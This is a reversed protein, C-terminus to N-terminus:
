FIPFFSSFLHLFPSFSFLFAICGAFFTFVILSFIGLVNQDCMNLSEHWFIMLEDLSRGRVCVCVCRGIVGEVVVWKWSAPRGAPQSATAGYRQRTGDPAYLAVPVGSQALARGAAAAVPGGLPSRRVLSLPPRINLHSDIILRHINEWLRRLFLFCCSFRRISEVRINSERSAFSCRVIITVFIPHM